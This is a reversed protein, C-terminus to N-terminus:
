RAVAKRRRGTAVVILLIGAAIAAISFPLMNFDDGTKVDGPVTVTKNVTKNETKTTTTPENEEVGFILELGADKDQYANGQTEGDLKVFLTVTGSEGKALSGLFFYAKQDISDEVGYLGKEEDGGVSASNYFLQSGGPGQYELRYTYAGGTAEAVDEFSALVKNSMWFDTNKSGTNKLDVTYTLTDGPQMEGIVKNVNELNSNLKSGDWEVSGGPVPYDNAFATSVPLVLLSAVLLLTIIKKM